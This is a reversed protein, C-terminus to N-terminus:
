WGPNQAFNYLREVEDKPLPYWYHKRDFVRTEETVQKREFSFVNNTAPTTSTASSATVTVGDIPYTEKFMEEAIMWRRIDFWRHNECMLEVARENRIVDRFTSTSSTLDSRVNVHGVRSRVKNIADVASYTYGEPKSNPGYAENMAEAYDLWVQTTRIMTGNFGYDTYNSTGYLYRASTWAWKKCMYGTENTMVAESELEEGGKWTALYFDDGSDGYQGWQEGPYVIFAAFRPDRMTYANPFTNIEADTILPDDTVWKTGELTITYGNKSEFKDVINQTPFHYQYAWNGTGNALRMPLWHCRISTQRDMNARHVFWLAEPGVLASYYFINAYGVGDPANGVEMMELSPAETDIAELCEKAYQAALTARAIDYSEIHNTVTIPNQMLPSAAYLQSMSKLALAAIRSARGANADNWVAPLYEAAIDLDAIILDTSEQYSLRPLDVDDSSPDFLQMFNPMGGCRRIVEFYFWARMFYAQGMLERKQAETLVTQEPLTEIVRSCIRMGKLANSMVNGSKEMAIEAYSTNYWTGNNIGISPNASLNTGLEDSMGGLHFYQLNCYLGQAASAHDFLYDYAYDLYGRTSEYNSFVDSEDLGQDPAMDLYSECSVVVLTALSM